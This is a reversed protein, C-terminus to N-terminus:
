FVSIDYHMEKNYANNYIQYILKNYKNLKTNYDIKDSNWFSFRTMRIYWDKQRNTLVLVQEKGDQTIHYIYYIPFGNFHWHLYLAASKTHYIEQDFIPNLIEKEFTRAM